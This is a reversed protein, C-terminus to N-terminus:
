DDSKVGVISINEYIYEVLISVKEFTEIDVTEPNFHIHFSDEICMIFEILQISDMVLTDILSTNMTIIERNVELMSALIETVRDFIDRKEM